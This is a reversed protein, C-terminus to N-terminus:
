HIRRCYFEYRLNIEKVFNYTEGGRLYGAKCVPDSFYKRQSKLLVFHGVDEWLQPDKGHKKALAQADRIHTYGANYAALIFKIREKRNKVDKFTKDLTAIYRVAGKVSYEVDNLKDAPIGMARATRPMLQMIGRAGAWSVVDPNFKSEQYALSALMRWDWKIDEAYLKFYMDYKSIHGTTIDMIPNYMQNIQAFEFYKHISIQYEKTNINAKHWKDAAEALLPTDKRTAWAANQNLSIEMNVDLKTNFQANIRALDNDCITYDIKGEAVQQCLDEVSVEENYVPQVDIANGGLEQNLNYLRTLYKESKAYVKKGVLQTVDRITNSDKRQVLVQHTVNRQGCYTLYRRYQKTVPLNYVIIDAQKDLLKQVMENENSAVIIKLKLNLSKAFSKALEYQFGMIEERYNFYSAPGSMTLVRLEGRKQIDPLDLTKKLEVKENQSGDKRYYYVVTVVAIAAVAVPLLRKDLTKAIAVFRKLFEIIHRFINKM